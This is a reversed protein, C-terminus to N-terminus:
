PKQHLRLLLFFCHPDLLSLDPRAASLEAFLSQYWSPSKLISRFFYFQPPDGKIHSLIRSAATKPDGHIDADMRKFPMTGHIGTNPIKQAVIGDPSFAAYADLTPASMAPAFGDIIFGTLTLDWRLYHPLCHNRWVDVAQPLASFERPSQLMGPNIYGAGSDGALFFDNNTKTRRTYVLATPFRDALTPNFAWALPVSGRAPDDWLSPLMQYLWAASDYDGVYFSIYHKPAPRDNQDILERKKLDALTPKKQPYRDDLKMHQYLSANVLASMGLADADLYANYASAIQVFKWETHVDMHNGGARNTYKWAWPVFGGIHIMTQGGSAEYASLLVAQLTKREADLPQNPSDVPTEDDWPSLDFFFGRHAIFYDHNSLTNNTISGGLTPKQLWYADIYYALKTPDCKGTDLYKEKVWLYADCKPSGTSPTDTGPILGKGTFYTSGDQRYLRLVVRLKPGRNVLRDYLSGPTPDYRLCPLDEAGAITSAVNSAAAVELNYCVVGRFALRFTEAVEELTELRKIQHHALMGGPQRLKEIWYDDLNVTKGRVRRNIYRVFLRPRARNVIGQLSFLFHCEDWARKVAAPDRLDTRLYPTADYLYLINQQPQATASLLPIAAIALWLAINKVHISRRRHFPTAPPIM